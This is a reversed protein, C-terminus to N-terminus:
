EVINAFTPNISDYKVPSMLLSIKLIFVYADKKLSKLNWAIFKSPNICSKCIFSLIQSYTVFMQCINIFCKVFMKYTNSFYKVLTWKWSSSPTSEKESSPTTIFDNPCLGDPLVGCIHLFM